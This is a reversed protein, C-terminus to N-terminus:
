GWERKLVIKDSVVLYISVIKETGKLKYIYWMYSDKDAINRMLITLFICIFIFPTLISGM